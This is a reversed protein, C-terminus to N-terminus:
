WLRPLAKGVELLSKLSSIVKPWGETIGELMDSDPELGDHTLTLCVVDYITEIEITVRSHKDERAADAPFAWSIVLKRPPNFEIVKGV